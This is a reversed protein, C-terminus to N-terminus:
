GSATLPSPASGELGDYPPLAQRIKEEVMNGCPKLFCEHAGLATVESVFHSSATIVYVPVTPFREKMLKLIDRGQTESRLRWDLVLLEPENKKILSMAEGGDNTALVEYDEELAEIFCETINPEDDVIMIKHRM